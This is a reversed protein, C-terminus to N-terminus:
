LLGLFALLAATEDAGLRAAGAPAADHYSVDARWAFRALVDDLSRGSGNTFYPWKKYLRRLTSVRAGDAHVYPTVGTKAYAANSWVIPGAPSLILSEWREFPVVAKPEDALLRAEHCSACRARFVEAGARELDTFRATAAARKAAPNERHSFDMLFSMFAERLQEAPLQAPADEVYALWPLDARSLAFWPDRGNHRNAVRFEAHVMQAMTKDLARSFYPRNNFLGRLPRTTAFVQDRGTYHTRGDIYGEFHCTECTFRSLEGDSSNWPAMMSTFFLLEGLRSSLSRRPATSAVAFLRPGGGSDDGGAEVWADFLPDAFLWSGDHRRVAANTGPLLAAHEVQPAAGLEGRWTLTALTASAYGAVTITLSAEASGLALWKPTVVDIASLNVTTLREPQAAGRALKYLFLYSDIYGFGGDERVLPHDEVGAVAILLEGNARQRLAFSWLPGDHHVRAVAGTGDSRRLELTHDLLCNVAVFAGVAEVQIPGHCRSLERVGASRLGGGRVRELAVALLRGEREDVVYAVQGDPSLAVSRLGLADVALTSAKVLGAPTVRYHALEAAGEGVVLVDDQASVALGSPSVPAAVRAKEVGHDDLLVLADEGRLLGVMREGDGLAALRYPDAGFRHDASPLAAFDTTARRQEEFAHLAALEADHTGTSASAAVVSAASTSPAAASAVAPSAPAAATVSTSSSVAAAPASQMRGRCGGISLVATIAVLAEHIAQGRALHRRGVLPAVM